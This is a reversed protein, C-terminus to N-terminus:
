GRDARKKELDRIEDRIVAAREFEEREVAENLTEQLIKLRQKLRLGDGARKPIKGKHVTQGHIRGLLPELRSQYTDYCRDCGLRGTRRFEQYTLGCQPCKVEKNERLGIESFIPESDLLSAFINQLSFESGSLLKFEGKERACQECLHMETTKNNVTRRILVTAERKQCEECLMKFVGGMPLSKYCVPTYGQYKLNGWHGWSNGAIFQVHRKRLGWGNSYPSHNYL